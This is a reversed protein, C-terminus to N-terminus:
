RRRTAADGRPLLDAQGTSAPSSADPAGFAAPGAGYVRDFMVKNVYFSAITDHSAAGASPNQERSWEVVVGYLADAETKCEAEVLKQFWQHDARMARAVAVRSDICAAYADRGSRIRLDDERVQALAAGSLAVVLPALSFAKM